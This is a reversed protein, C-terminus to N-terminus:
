VVRAYGAGNPNFALFAFIIEAFYTAFEEFFFYLLTEILKQDNACRWNSM